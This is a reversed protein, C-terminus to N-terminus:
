APSVTSDLVPPRGADIRRQTIFLVLLFVVEVASGIARRVGEDPFSEGIFVAAAALTIWPWGGRRWFALGIVGVVGISVISVVPPGKVGVAVYRLVGDLVEAELTLGALRTAIGAAMVLASVAIAVARAGPRRAWAHGAQEAMSWGAYIIWPLALQHLAFRPVSLALLLDGEGVLGGIALVLNDWFVGFTVLLLIGTSARPGARLITLGYGLLVLYAIAYTPYLLASM